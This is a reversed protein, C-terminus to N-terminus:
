GRDFAALTRRRQHEARCVVTAAQRFRRKHGPDGFTVLQVGLDARRAQVCGAQHEDLTFRATALRSQQALRGPMCHAFAHPYQSSRRAILDSPPWELREVAHDAIKHSRCARVRVQGILHPRTQSVITSHTVAANGRSVSSNPHCLEVM